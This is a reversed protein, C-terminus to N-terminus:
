ILYSKNEQKTSGQLRAVTMKFAAYFTMLHELCLLQQIRLLGTREFKLLMVVLYSSGHGEFSVNNSYIM